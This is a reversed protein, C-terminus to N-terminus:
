LEKKETYLVMRVKKNTWALVASKNLSFYGTRGSIINVIIGVHLRTLYTLKKIYSILIPGVVYLANSRAHTGKPKEYSQPFFIM